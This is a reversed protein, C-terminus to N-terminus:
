PQQRKTLRVGEYGSELQEDIENLKEVCEQIFTLQDELDEKTTIRKASKKDSKDKGGGGM